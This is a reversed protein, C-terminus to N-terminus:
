KKIEKKLWTKMRKESIDLDAQPTDDTKKMIGHLLVITRGHYFFFIRYTNKSHSVKLEWLDSHSLKKCYTYPMEIGKEELLSIFTTIKIRAKKGISKLFEGVPSGGGDDEFFEAQYKYKLM